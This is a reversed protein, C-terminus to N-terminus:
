NLLRNQNEHVATFHKPFCQTRLYAAFNFLIKISISRFRLSFFNLNIIISINFIQLQQQQFSVKQSFGTTPEFGVGNITNIDSSQQLYFVRFIQLFIFNKASGQGEEDASVIVNRRRLTIEMQSRLDWCLLREFPFSWLAYNESHVAIIAFFIKTRQSRLLSVSLRSWWGCVILAASDLAKDIKVCLCAESRSRVCM